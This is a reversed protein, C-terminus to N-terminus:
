LSREGGDFVHGVFGQADITGVYGGGHGHEPRVDEGTPYVHLIREVPTAAPDVLAWLCVDFGQVGIRLLHAGTPVTVRRFPTLEHKYIRKM